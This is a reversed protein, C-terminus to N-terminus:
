ERGSHIAPLKRRGRTGAVGDGISYSALVSVASPIRTQRAQGEKRSVHHNPWRQRVPSSDKVTIPRPSTPGLDRLCSSCCRSRCLAAAISVLPRHPSRSIKAFQLRSDSPDEPHRQGHHRKGEGYINVQQHVTIFPICSPGPASNPQWDPSGVACREGSRSEAACIFRRLCRFHHM